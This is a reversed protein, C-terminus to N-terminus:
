AGVDGTEAVMVLAPSGASSVVNADFGAALLQRIVRAHGHKIALLLVADQDRWDETRTADLLKGPTPSPPPPPPPSAHSHITMERQRKSETARSRARSRDGSRDAAWDAGMGKLGM